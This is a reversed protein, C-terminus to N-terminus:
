LLHYQVKKTIGSKRLFGRAVLNSLYNRATREGCECWQAVQVSSVGGNAAANELILRENMALDASWRWVSSVQTFFGKQRFVAPPLKHGALETQAIQIGTGWGEILGLENFARAIVPNRLVSIGTGIDDLELGEPLAGASTIEIVDDFIALRVPGTGEEWSRHCLANVMLERFAVPPYSLREVRASATRSAAVSVHKRLFALAEDYLQWIPRDKSQKDLFHKASTHEFRAMELGAQPLISAPAPHFLLVGAMTPVLRAGSDTAYMMKQLWKEHSMAPPPIQRREKRTSIFSAIVTKDLDTIEAQPCPLRDWSLGSSQLRLRQVTPADARRTSAGIRVFVQDRHRGATIAYPRQYGQEVHIALLCKGDVNFARIFPIVPPSINTAAISCVKQELAVADAADIGIVDRPIKDTAGIILDGGATNALACLAAALDDHDPVVRKFELTASEHAHKLDPLKTTM